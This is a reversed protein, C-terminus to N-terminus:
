DGHQWLEVNIFCSKSRITAKIFDHRGRLTAEGSRAAEAPRRRGDTKMLLESFNSFHLLLYSTVQFCFCDPGGALPPPPGRRGGDAGSGAVSDIGSSISESHRPWLPTQLKVGEHVQAPSM